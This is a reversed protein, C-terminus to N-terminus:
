YLSALLMANMQMASYFLSPTFYLTCHLACYLLFYVACILCLLAYCLKLLLSLSLSLSLSLPYKRKMQKPPLRARVCTRGSDFITCRTGLKPEVCFTGNLTCSRVRRPPGGEHDCNRWHMTLIFNQFLVASKYRSARHLRQPASSICRKNQGGKALPSFHFRFLWRINANLQRLIM